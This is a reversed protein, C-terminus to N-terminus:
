QASMEARLRTIEDGLEAQQQRSSSLRNNVGMLQMDIQNARNESDADPQETLPQRYTGSAPDFVQASVMRTRGRLSDEQLRLSAREGELSAIQSTLNTVAQEKSDIIMALYVKRGKHFEVLWAEELDKPCVNEYINGASGFHYANAPVCFRRVGEDYKAHMLKESEGDCMEYAFPKGQKATAFINDQTCYKSMGAKFGTDMDGFSMQANVKQCQKTFEDADLRRGSMAVDFGHNYWNTKECDKRQFYSACGALLYVAIAGGLIRSWWCARGM